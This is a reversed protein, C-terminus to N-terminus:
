DQMTKHGREGIEALHVYQAAIWAINDANADDGLVEVELCQDQMTERGLNGIRWLYGTEREIDAQEVSL